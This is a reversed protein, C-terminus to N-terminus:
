VISSNLKIIEKKDIIGHDFEWHCNPCLAVTNERSNIESVKTELTFEAIGKIHCVEYHKDYGCVICQKPRDSNKYLNRCRQRIPTYRTADMCREGAVDFLTFNDISGFKKWCTQCYTVKNFILNPCNKCKKTKKRKFETTIKNNSIAACSSSCYNKGHKAKRIQSAAKICEKNCNACVVIKQYYEKVEVNHKKYCEPNCFFQQTKNDRIESPFKEIEKKCYSCNVTIM